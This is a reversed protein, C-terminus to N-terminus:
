FAWAAVYYLSLSFGPSLPVECVPPAQWTKIKPPLYNDEPPPPTRSSVRWGPRSESPRRGQTNLVTRLFPSM